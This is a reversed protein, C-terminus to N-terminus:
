RGTLVDGQASGTLNEIGGLRDGAAGNTNDEIQDETAQLM